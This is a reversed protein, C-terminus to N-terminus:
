EGDCNQCMTYLTSGLWCCCVIAMLLARRAPLTSMVESPRGLGKSESGGSASHCARMAPTRFAAGAVVVVTGTVVTGTVVTGTVVTGTVVRGRKLEHHDKEVVVVVDDVGGVIVVVVVRATEVGGVVRGGDM